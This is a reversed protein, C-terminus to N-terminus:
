VSTKPMEGAAAAVISSTVFITSATLSGAIPSIASRVSERQPLYRGYRSQTAM